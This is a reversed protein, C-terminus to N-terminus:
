FGFNLGFSITRLNPYSAYPSSPDRYHDPYPNFLTLLNTGVVYARISAIGLAQSYKSPLTYSLNASAINWQFSNVFWFDSTVQYDDKYYPAPYAADTNTPTWHNAWYVPRNETATAASNGDLSAIGGWSMSTIVNLSLSKYSGGFNFGLQYHNSAKHGLFQLDKSDIIGDGNVDQFNIMGPKVPLGMIAVNGAGGAAAQRAAIIADADAQTKIIGLSKYGLVGQDGSRGTLDQFTGVLGSAVDYKIYKNDSWSFFPSINYSFDKGIRDKWSLSVEYGFTNIIGYNETSPAAGVVVPVSSTLSALMDYHHDWFYDATLSLRNRLFEMDIGYDTKTVHDWTYYPNPISINPLLGISRDANNGGLVAGGNNGTGIKYNAAYQFAQTNYGGLSGISARLKFFDIFHINNKFFNEHSVVWGLSASPFYGWQNNPPFYTNADARFAVEALYKDAYSYNLRAAYAEKGGESIMTAQNSSQTGTTFNQNDKGNLIVGDAEAAVGENYNEIQEYLAVFNIEHKGFTRDYNLTVDWQYNDAYGPTLRVRDGNKITPTGVIDGGPIHENDGLGSYQYYIFSTGYQKNFSNNINRNYTSGISLGRVGPIQYTLAATANMIYNNSSTYNDSNQVAFFNINDKATKASLYVPHGDIFYSQWPPAQTLSLFDNDLSETTGALKYWYSKSKSVDESLSLSLKLGKAIKADMSGRFGLHNTNVGSFNSNQNVYNAGAFYTVKDNGGSVNVAEREILATKFAQNVFNNNHTSFYALEDPTYYNLDKKTLDGGIYGDPTISFNNAGQEYDNLWTAMQLGSMMTPLKVADALGLSSSFSVKPAGNKGRKTTVIIVGNAGEIGYIAAAADKLISISAIESQDLLNFDSLTRKVGDIIYLPDTSAGNKALYIPNRITISANQGPRATGGAVGVAANTGKLAAALNTTPIDQIEKLDVTAVAGTLHAKKQTGYGVVIVENLSNATPTLRFDANKEGVRLTKEQYVYGLFKVGVVVNQLNTVTITYRGLSDTVTGNTSGKVQVTAGPITQNKDDTVTGSITRNQAHVISSFLLLMSFLLCIKRM